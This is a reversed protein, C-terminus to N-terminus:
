GFLIKGYLNYWETFTMSIAGTQESQWEEFADRLIKKQIQDKTAAKEKMSNCALSVKKQKGLRGIGFSLNEREEVFANKM